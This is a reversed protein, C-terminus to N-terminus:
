TSMKYVDTEAVHDYEGPTARELRDQYASALVLAQQDVALKRLQLGVDKVSARGFVLAKVTRELNTSM